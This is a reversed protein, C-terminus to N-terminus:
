SVRRKTTGGRGPRTSKRAGDLTGSRVALMSGSPRASRILVELRRAQLAALHDRLFGEIRIPDLSAQKLARRAAEPLRGTPVPDTLSPPEHPASM